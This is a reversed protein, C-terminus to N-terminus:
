YLRLKVAIFSVAVSLLDGTIWVTLFMPLVVPDNFLLYGSLIIMIIGLGLVFLGLAQLCTNFFLQSSFAFKEFERYVANIDRSHAFEDNM